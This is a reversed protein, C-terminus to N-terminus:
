ESGCQYPRSSATSSTRRLRRCGGCEAHRASCADSAASRWCTPRACEGCRLRLFGHAMSAAGGPLRRIGGTVSRWIPAMAHDAHALRRDRDLRHLLGHLPVLVAGLIRAESPQPVAQHTRDASHVLSCCAAGGSPQGARVLGWRRRPATVPRQVGATADCRGDAPCAESRACDFSM